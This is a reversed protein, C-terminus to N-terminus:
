PNGGEIGATPRPPFLPSTNEHMGSAPEPIASPPLGQVRPVIPAADADQFGASRLLSDALPAVQPIAAINQAAETGSFMTEVKKATTEAAVKAAQAELLRAKAELTPDTPATQQQMAEIIEAKRELNSHQIVFPDPIRVGAKRMEMTQVFQSNQFTVQLPQESVVVDYEGMTLDNLISGDPQPMNIPLETSVEKGDPGRETIRLIRPADYFRQILKLILKALLHRTRSLNDLPVALQQQAAFQLSQTALGSLQGETQGVMAENIGTVAEVNTAAREIVKDVGTPVQNPQIKEPKAAGKRYVLLLGGQAGRSELETEHMNALSDEEAMWGSNATTSISHVLSSMSKNFMRQPGIANAVLGVTQGRRFIPFYPVVTFHEYPSVGDFLVVDYTTVLWRVQRVPRRMVVAGDNIAKARQEPTMNDFRRVDGTPWVAVQGDVTEWYQRDIVRWRPMSTQEPGLYADYHLGSTRDGFKNRGEAETDDGFDTDESPAGAKEVQNRANKGFMWEIEALTLWRTVTVDQWGDPEYSNSDPDPIVSRPDLDKICIEGSLNDDFSMRIDFYGRDEILGDGYVQTEKWRYGVNDAIQMAVKSLTQAKEDDAGQGRPRFAIQVRNAIQYGIAANVKPMILNATECLRGESEIVAREEDTWQEGRYMRDRLRAGEIYARHGRMSVYEWRQWNEHARNTTTTM